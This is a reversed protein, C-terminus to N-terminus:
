VVNRPFLTWDHRPQFVTSIFATEHRVVHRRHSVFFLHVLQQLISISVLPDWLMALDPAFKTHRMMRTVEEPFDGLEAHNRRLIGLYRELCCAAELILNLSCIKRNLCLYIAKVALM